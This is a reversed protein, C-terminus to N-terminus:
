LEEEPEGAPFGAEAAGDVSLYVYSEGLTPCDDLAIGRGESNSLKLGQRGDTQWIDNIGEIISARRCQKIMHWGSSGLVFIGMLPEDTDMQNTINVIAHHNGLPTHNNFVTSSQLSRQNALDLTEEELRTLEQNQPENHQLGQMEEGDILPSRERSIIDLRWDPMEDDSVPRPSYSSSTDSSFTDDILGWFACFVSKRVFLSTIDRLKPVSCAFIAPTLFHRDRAYASSYQRGCRRSIPEGTGSTTLPPASTGPRRQHVGKFAQSISEVLSELEVANYEYDSPPRADLLVKHAAERDPDIKILRSIEESHFGLNKAQIALDNWARQDYRRPELADTNDDLLPNERTLEVLSQMIRLYLLKMQSRSFSELTVSGNRSQLADFAITQATCPLRTSGLILQKLTDTCLRLYKFDKQLTRITPILHQIRRIRAVMHERELGDTVSKFAEGSSIAISIHQDDSRSVAPARLELCQVDSTDVLRLAAKSGM